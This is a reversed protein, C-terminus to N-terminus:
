RVVDFVGLVVIVILVAVWISSRLRTSRGGRLRNKAVKVDSHAASVKQSHWGFVTGVVLFIIVVIAVTPSM